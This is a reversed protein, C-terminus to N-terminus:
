PSEWAEFLGGYGTPQNRSRAQAVPTAALHPGWADVVTDALGKPWHSVLVRERHRKDALVGCRDPKAM